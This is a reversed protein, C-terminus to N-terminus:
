RCNSFNKPLVSLNAVLANFKDEAVHDVKNYVAALYDEAAARTPFYLQLRVPEWAMHPLIYIVYSRTTASVNPDPENSVKAMGMRNFYKEREM